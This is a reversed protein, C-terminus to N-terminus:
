QEEDSNNSDDDSSNDRENEREKYGGRRRYGGGRIRGRIRGKRSINQNKGENDRVMNIENNNEKEKNEDSDLSNNLESKNSQKNTSKEYDDNPSGRKSSGRKYGKGRRSYSNNNSYSNGRSNNGRGRSGRDRKGRIRGRNKCYSSSYSSDKINSENKDYDNNQIIDNKNKQKEDKAMSIENDDETYTIENSNKFHISDNNEEEEIGDDSDKVDEDSKEENEEGEENESNEEDEDEDEDENENEEDEEEKEEEKNKNTNKDDYDLQIFIKEDEENDNNNMKCLPCLKFFNYCQSCLIHNCYKFIYLNIGKKGYIYNLCSKCQIKSLKQEKHKTKKYKENLKKLDRELEKKSDSPLFLEEIKIDTPHKRPCLQGKQCYKFQINDCPYLKRYNREDYFIENRTHFKNCLDANKCKIDEEDTKWKNEDIVEKCIQNQKIKINRRKELNNHYYPCKLMHTSFDESNIKFLDLEIPCPNTKFESLYCNNGYLGFKSAYDKLKNFIEKMGNDAPNYIMRISINKLNRYKKSPENLDVIEKIEDIGKKNFQAKYFPTNSFSYFVLPHFMIENINHSFICTKSYLSRIQRNIEDLNEYLDKCKECKIGHSHIHKEFFDIFSKAEKQCFGKCLIPLYNYVNYDNLPRRLKYSTKKNSIYEDLKEETMKSFKKENIVMYKYMMNFDEINFMEKKQEFNIQIRDRITTNLYHKLSKIITVKRQLDNLTEIEDKPLMNIFKSINKKNHVKELDKFYNIFFTNNFHKDKYYIKLLEYLEKLENPTNKEKSIFIRYPNLYNRIERKIAQYVSNHYRRIDSFFKLRNDKHHDSLLIRIAKSENKFIKTKEKIISEIQPKDDNSDQDSIYHVNEESDTM